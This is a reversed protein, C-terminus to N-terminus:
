KRTKSELDYVRYMYLHVFHPTSSSIMNQHVSTKQLLLGRSGSTNWDDRHDNMRQNVHDGTEGVYQKGCKTCTILYVINTTKCSTNCRLKITEGSASKVIQTPNDNQLNQMKSLRM